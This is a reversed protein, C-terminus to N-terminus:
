YLNFSFELNGIVSIPKGDKTAPVFRIKSTALLAHEDLGYGLSKLIVPYKLTGDAAFIVMIVVVGQVGRNRAEETYKAKEKYLITPRTQEKIEFVEGATQSLSGEGACARLADLQSAWFADQALAPNLKLYHELSAAAPKFLEARSPQKPSNELKSLIPRSNKLVKYRSAYISILAQTKLLYGNAFSADTKLALEAENLAEAPAEQLLRAKGVIFHAQASQPNQTLLTKAEREARKLDNTQLCMLALSLRSAEHNPRLAVAKEFAKRAEKVKGLQYQTLGLVHWVEPNGKQKQSLAILAPLAEGAKGSKYLNYAQAFEQDTQAQIEGNSKQALSHAEVLLCFWCLGLTWFTRRLQQYM